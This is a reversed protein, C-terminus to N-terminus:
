FLKNMSLIPRLAYGRTACLTSIGFAIIGRHSLPDPCTLSILVCIYSGCETVMNHVIDTLYIYGAVM